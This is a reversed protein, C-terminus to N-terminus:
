VSCHEVSRGFPGESFKAFDASDYLLNGRAEAMYTKNVLKALLLLLNASKMKCPVARKKPARRANVIKPSLAREIVDVSTYDSWCERLDCALL